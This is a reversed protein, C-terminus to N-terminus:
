VRCRRPVTSGSEAALLGEYVGLLTAAVTSWRYPELVEAPPPPREAEDFAECLRDPDSVTTYPALPEFGRMGFPTAIVPMARSHYHLLKLNSGSGITVTNLGRFGPGTYDDFRDMEPDFFVNPLRCGRVFARGCSGNIVFAVDSRGAAVNALLFRLADRNHEVDSGSYLARVRFTALRPFRAVAARDDFVRRGPPEIGNPAITMAAPDALHLEELRRCDGASVALVHRSRAVLEGELRRIRRGVVEAAWPSLCEARAYDFEVNHSAYVVPMRPDLHRVLGAFQAHEFQVIDAKAVHRRLLAALGPHFSTWYQYPFPRGNLLLPLVFPYPVQVVRFPEDGLNAKSQRPHWPTLVTVDVGLRALQRSLQVVRLKGGATAPLVPYPCVSLLRIRTGAVSM